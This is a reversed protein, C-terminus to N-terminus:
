TLGALEKNAIVLMEDSGSADSQGNQHSHYSLIEDICRNISNLEFKISGLSSADGRFNKLNNIAKQSNERLSQFVELPIVNEATPGSESSLHSFTSVLLLLGVIVKM